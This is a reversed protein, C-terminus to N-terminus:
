RQVEIRSGGLERDAPSLVVVDGAALGSLAEVETGMEAGLTVYRMSAVQQADVVWVGHISGHAVVAARPILVAVRTSSSVQVSGYMGARLKGSPPLDIKVAFSHSSENMAPEIQAVIGEIPMASASPISVALKAGNPLQGLLSEDATVVLQMPGGRDIELLPVSPAALAGPDAHRATVIGAFPAVIASYEAVAHASRAQAKMAELQSAAARRQATAAESRRAVEDYEQPSISKQDRLIKYRDLTSSALSAQATAAELTHQAAETSSGAEQVRAHAEAADLRVLVQGARVTDGEHVLVGTVRGVVQASLVASEKARVSGVVPSSSPIQAARATAVQLGRVTPAPQAAGPEKRCGAFFITLLLLLAIRATTKMTELRM